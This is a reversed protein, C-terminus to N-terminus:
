GGFIDRLLGLLGKRNKRSKSSSIPREIVPLQSSMFVQESKLNRKKRKKVHLWLDDKDEENRGRGPPYTALRIFLLTIGVASVIGWKWRNM